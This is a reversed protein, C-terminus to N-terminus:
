KFAFRFNFILKNLTTNTLTKFTPITTLHSISVSVVVAPLPWLIHGGVAMSVLDVRAVGPRIKGSFGCGGQGCSGDYETAGIGSIGTLEEEVCVLNTIM